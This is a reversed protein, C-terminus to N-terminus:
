SATPQPEIAGIRILHQQLSPETIRPVGPAVRVETLHGTAALRAVTRESTRLRLAVEGRTLLTVGDGALIGDSM